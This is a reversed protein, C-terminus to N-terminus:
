PLSDSPEVMEGPSGLHTPLGALKGANELAVKQFDSENPLLMRFWRFISDMSPKNGCNIFPWDTGLIFRELPARDLAAQAFRSATEFRRSEHSIRFPASLKITVTGEIAGEIMENFGSQRNDLEPNPKGIHDVVVPVRLHICLHIVKALAEGQSHVQLLLGSDSLKKLFDSHPLCHQDPNDIMNLRVGIIGQEKLEDLQQINISEPVVGVGRMTASFQKLVSLLHSNDYRYISPQVAIGGQIGFRKMEAILEREHHFKRGNQGSNSTVPRLLHLHTDIM